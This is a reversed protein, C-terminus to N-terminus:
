YRSQGKYHSDRKSVSVQSLTLSARTALQSKAETSPLTDKKFESELMERQEKSYFKSGKGISTPPAMAPNSSTKISDKLTLRIPSQSPSLHSSGSEHHQTSFSLTEESERPSKVSMPHQDVEITGSDGQNELRRSTDIHKLSQSPASEVVGQANNTTAQRKKNVRGWATRCAGSTRKGGFQQKLQESVDDFHTGWNIDEDKVGPQTRQKYQEAMKVLLDTEEDKWRLALAKRTKLEENQSETPSM